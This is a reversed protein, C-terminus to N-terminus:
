RPAGCASCNGRIDSPSNSGCASCVVKVEAVVTVKTGNPIKLGPMYQPTTDSFSTVEIAAYYDNDIKIANM